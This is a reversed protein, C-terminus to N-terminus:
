PAFVLRPIQGEVRVEARFSGTPTGACAEAIAHLLARTRRRCAPHESVANAIIEYAVGDGKLGHQARDSSKLMTLLTARNRPAVSLEADLQSIVPAEEAEVIWVIMDEITWGDPWRLVKKAGSGREDLSNAYGIGENDGDVLAV